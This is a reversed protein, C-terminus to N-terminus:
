RAPAPTMRQKLASAWNTIVVLKRVARASTSDRPGGQDLFLLRRGDPHIDALIGVVSDRVVRRSTIRISDRADMVSAAVIQNSQHYFITRSDKSWLAFSNNAMPADGISVKVKNELGPWRRVYLSARGSEGSIYTLWRGDPSV